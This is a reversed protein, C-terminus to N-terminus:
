CRKHCFYPYSTLPYLSWLVIHYLVKSYFCCCFIVWGIVSFQTHFAAATYGAVISTLTCIFVLSTFLAGRNYPYLVGFFALFFLICVRFLFYIVFLTLRQCTYDM